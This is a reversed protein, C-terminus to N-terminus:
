IAGLAGEQLERRMSEVLEQERKTAKTAETLTRGLSDRRVGFFTTDGGRARHLHGRQETLYLLAGDRLARSVTMGGAEALQELRAKEEESMRLSILKMPKSVKAM